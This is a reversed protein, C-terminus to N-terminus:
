IQCPDSQDKQNHEGGQSQQQKKMACCAWPPSGASAVAREAEGGQWDSSGFASTSHYPFASRLGGAEDLPVFPGPHQNGLLGSLLESPLLCGKHGRM